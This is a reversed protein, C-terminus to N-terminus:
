ETFLRSCGIRIFWYLVGVTLWFSLLSFVAEGYLAWNSTLLKHGKM